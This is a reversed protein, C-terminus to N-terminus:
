PCGWQSAGANALLWGAVEANAVPDYPSAGALGIGETVWTWTSPIVQFLGAAGNRGTVRPNLRSECEAIRLMLEGDVQYRLSVSAILARIQVREAGAIDITFSVPIVMESEDATSSVPDLGDAATVSALSMLLILACATALVLWRPREVSRM